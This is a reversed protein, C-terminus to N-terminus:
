APQRTRLTVSVLDPGRRVRLRASRARALATRLQDLSFASYGGLETIVDGKQLGAAEGVSGPTVEIVVPRGDSGLEVTIGSGLEEGGRLLKALAPPNFGTVVKGQYRLVPFRTAGLSIAEALAVEDKRVDRITARIEQAELWDMLADSAGEGPAVFVEVRM